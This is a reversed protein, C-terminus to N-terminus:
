YRKNVSLKHHSLLGELVMWVCVLIVLRLGLLREFLYGLGIRDQVIRLFSRCIVSEARATCVVPM